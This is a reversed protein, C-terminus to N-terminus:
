HHLQKFLNLKVKFIKFINANIDGMKFFISIM